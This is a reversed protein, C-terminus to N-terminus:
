LPVEVRVHTGRGPASVISCTGGLEQARGLMGSLGIGRSEVPTLTPDFGRGDDEVSLCVTGRRMALSILCKTARAHRVVNAVAAQATRYLALALDDSVELTERLENKLEVAFGPASATQALDRLGGVLGLRELVAPRLDHSLGVVEDLTSKLLQQLEDMASRPKGELQVAITKLQLIAVALMQGAGDHLAQGIRQREEEKGRAIASHVAREGGSVQGSSWQGIPEM